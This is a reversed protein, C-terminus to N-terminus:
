IFQILLIILLWLFCVILVGMTSEKERRNLDHPEFYSLALRELEECEQEGIIDRYQCEDYEGYELSLVIM